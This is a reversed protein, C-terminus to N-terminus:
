MYFLAVRTQIEHPMLEYSIRFLKELPMKMGQQVWVCTAELAGELYGMVLLKYYEDEMDIGQKRLLYSFIDYSQRLIYNRLGNPERSALANKFFSPYGQLAKYLKFFSAKYSLGQQIKGISENLLIQYNNTLLDYKDRYKRYFTSRSVGSQRLIDSTSIKDFSQTEMLVALSEALKRALPDQIYEFFGQDDSATQEPVTKEIQKM